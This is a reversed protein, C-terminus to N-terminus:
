NGTKSLLSLDPLAIDPAQQWGGGLSKFLTVQANILEGNESALQRQAALAAQQATLYDLASSAGEKQAIQALNLAQQSQAAADQLSSQAQQAAQYNALNEQVEKLAQLLTADFHALAAQQNAGAEAIHARAISINPFSWSILPGLRWVTAGSDGWGGPQHASSYISGGLSIRPYLEATSVGIKATAANLQQQARLVDPRRQLLAAGTEHPIHIAAIAPATACQQAAAPPDDPLRGMLVALEALARQRAAHLPPLATSTQDVRAQARVLDLASGVGAQSLMQVVHQKEEALTLARQALVSQQAADCAKLWARTTEAAVEVRVGQEEAMVALVDAHSAKSLSKLRGFLDVEWQVDMGIGYRTGTRITDSQDLAAELQDEATSGYGGETHLSTSPLKEGEVANAVQRAAMLHAAAERLNRNHALAQEVATNLNPDQYLRWWQDPVSSTARSDLQIPLTTNPAQSPATSCSVSVIPILSCLLKRFRPM